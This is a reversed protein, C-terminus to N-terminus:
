RTPLRHGGRPERLREERRIADTRALGIALVILCTPFLQDFSLVDFTAMTIFLTVSACMAAILLPQDEEPAVAYVSFPRHGVVLLFGLVLLLGLVGLEVLQTLYANDFLAVSPDNTIWGAGILPRRGVLEPLLAYKSVRVAMNHDTTEGTFFNLILRPTEPSLVSILGFGIVSSIILPVAKPLRSAQTVGLLIVVAALALFGTKQNTAGVGVLQVLIAGLYRRRARRDDSHLYLAVCVGIGVTLLGALVLSHPATAQARLEGTLRQDLAIEAGRVGRPDVELGIAQWIAGLFQTRSKTLMELIALLAQFVTMVIAVRMIRYAMPRWSALHYTAIFLGSYLIARVLGREAGDVEFTSMNGANLYPAMLVFVLVASGLVGAMGMPFPQPAAVMWLVWVGLLGLLIVDSVQLSVGIPLTYIDQILRNLVLFVLVLRLAVRARSPIADDGLGAFRVPLRTEIV